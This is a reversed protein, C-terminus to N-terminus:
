RKILKRVSQTGDALQLKVVYVGQPITSLDLTTISTTTRVVRLLQGSSAYLQVVAVRGSGEYRVTAVAEAPNPSIGWKMAGAAPGDVDVCDDGFVFRRYVGPAGGCVSALEVEYSSCLDLNEIEVELGTVAVEQWEDTSGRLRYRVFYDNGAAASAPWSLNTDGLDSEYEALINTPAPCGQQQRIDLCYDEYEGIQASSCASGRIRLTNLIIRMRTALPEADEPIVLNFTVPADGTTTLNEVVEGSTFQGNQDYDIYIRIAQTRQHGDVGPTITVPYVGGPVMTVSREDTFDGYARVDQRSRIVVDNAINVEQIWEESNDYGNPRCYSEEICAGCGLSVVTQRDGYGDRQGDTCEARFEFEYPTCPEIGGAIIVSNNRTSRTQWDDTGAARYRVRYFNGILLPSWSATFRGDGDAFVAFDEPITCCGDTSVTVRQTPLSAGDCSPRLEFEYAACAPLNDIILGDTPDAVEMWDNEGAPRYRLTVTTSETTNYTVSLAAASGVVPAVVFDTPEFCRDCESMLLAMAAGVDLQGGTTTRGALDVNPRASELLIRRIYRAAAAPDAVLLEGFAECPAAYLLAAAGTVQPTASSTGPFRIYTNGLGTTLADQGHAGLDISQAGFAANRVKNGRTDLNTVGILYDSPCNTPLDGLLDVDINANEVAGVNIIGARGLEDYLGCWIPSDEPNGYARGWSANTAVVYAGEQGGTADYLRRQDLAYGYSQLVEAESSIFGNRIIMLDVDWNVGTVGLRNNGRAGIIGAVPTGHGDSSGAEPNGDDQESDYGNYDDVYGNGDDDLGNNPIEGANVWLNDILDEHDLDAGDDLVAVVIRDGNITSGGTTVDWAPEINMDAGPTGDDYQGVNNFRWLDDYRTDNPRRRPRLRHNYQAVVVAYDRRIRALLQDGATSGHDYTFRYINSSKGLAKLGTLEGHAYMWKGADVDEGLQVILEGPVYDIFQGTLSTTFGLLFILSSLRHM